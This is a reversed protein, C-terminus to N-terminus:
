RVKVRGAAVILAAARSAIGAADMGCLRLLEERSGHAVFRDPIGVCECVARSERAALTAALQEGIGGRVVGDELFLVSRYRAVTEALIDENIPKIFRLHYVDAPMDRAALLRSAELAEVLMGGTATILIEGGNGGLLVGQGPVLPASLDVDDLGIRGRPYRIIVPTEQQLAWALMSRMELDNAPSLISLGPVGRFLAIDFVGHHTEGDNGVLGARDLAFVVPLRQLAVDHIVQDAARQMFTSYISAVPRMGSQALGAAFTVAHQEAIGVDFFRKPFRRAFETLGTGDTMAATVAVIRDNGEAARVLARSFSGTFTLGTKKEFAGNGVTFAGVGHFSCPDTEAHNYGKGKVTAVHVVTPRDFNKVVNEFVHVLSEINHGPLPGVYEYGLDAFLNTRFFFAKLGRKFRRIYEYLRIGIGPIRKVLRDVTNRFLRYPRTATLKTMYVSLGGVNQGISMNNDNLVIILRKGLQGAHNLAELAIGGTLSGDGIVAIVNGEIGRLNQGCLMGLAASISTSAHGTEFIDHQSESRKPFGSLGRFQRLTKFAEKRGTLIKHPYTQHGVDWIIKDKPSDFVRHLAITLEVVGLNSALHGGNRSVVDIMYHRIEAALRPLARMPLKKVDEVGGIRELLPYRKIPNTRTM